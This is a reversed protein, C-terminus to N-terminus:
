NRLGLTPPSPEPGWPGTGGKPTPQLSPLKPVHTLMAPLSASTQKSHTSSPLCSNWPTCNTHWSQTSRETETWTEWGLRIPGTELTM